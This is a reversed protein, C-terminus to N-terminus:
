FFNVHVTNRKGLARSEVISKHIIGAGEECAASAVAVVCFHSCCFYEHAVITERCLTRLVCMLLVNLKTM